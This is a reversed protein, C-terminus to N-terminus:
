GQGFAVPVQDFEQLGTEPNFGENMIVVPDFEVIFLVQQLFDVEGTGAEFCAPAQGPSAKSGLAPGPPFRLSKNSLRNEASSSVAQLSFM